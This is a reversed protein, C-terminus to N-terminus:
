HQALTIENTRVWYWNPATYLNQLWPKELSPFPTTQYPLLLYNSAVYEEAENWAALRKAPDLETNVTKVWADSKAKDPPLGFNNDGQAPTTIWYAWETPDVTATGWSPSRMDMGALDKQTFSEKAVISMNVGIADKVMQQMVQSWLVDDPSGTGVAIQITSVKKPDGGYKSNKFAAKAGEVDFKYYKPFLDDRHYPGAPIISTPLQVLQGFISDHIKQWDISLAVAKRLNVDTFPEKLLNFAWAYFNAAARLHLQDHMANSPQVFQKADASAVPYMFDANNNQYGILMTQNDGVYNINIQTLTPKKGLVYYPNPVLVANHTTPNFSKIMYPGIGGGGDENWRKSASDKIMQEPDGISWGSLSGAALYPLLAPSPATLHVEFTYDDKAVFGPIEQPPIVDGRERAAPVNKFAADAGQVMFLYTPEYWSQMNAIMIEFSKKVDIAKVPRGTPAFKLDKRLNFTWVLNDSSSKWSEAAYPLPNTKEDMTLLGGFILEGMYMGLGGDRAPSWWITTSNHYWTTQQSAAAPTAATTPATTPSPAVTPAATPAAATAAPAQTPAITAVPQVTALAAAASTSTAVPAAPPAPTPPAAPAGCAALLPAVGFALVGFRVFRRRSVLDSSRMEIEKLGM